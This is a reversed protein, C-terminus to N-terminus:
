LPAIDLNSFTTADQHWGRFGTHTPGSNGDFEFDNFMLQNDVYVALTKKGNGADTVEMRIDKEGSWWDPNSNKDPIVNRDNFRYVANGESNNNWPRIVLEGGGYGRDFQLIYGSSVAGTEDVVADFFIGYGGKTGSALQATTSIAYDGGSFANEMYIRNGEGGGGAGGSVVLGADTKQWGTGSKIFDDLSHADTTFNSYDSTVQVWYGSDVPTSPTRRVDVVTPGFTITSIGSTNPGVSWSFKAGLNDPSVSNFIDDDVHGGKSASYTSWIIYERKNLDKIVNEVMKLRIREQINFFDPLAVTSLIGLIVLVSIIEVFTFGHERNQQKMGAQRMTDRKKWDHRM